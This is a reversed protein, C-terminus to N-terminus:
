GEMLIYKGSRDFGQCIFPFKINCQVNDWKGLNHGTAHMMVCTFQQSEWPEWPLWNQYVIPTQENSLFFLSNYMYFTNSSVNRDINRSEVIRFTKEKKYFLKAFRQKMLGTGNTQAMIITYDLGYWKRVSFIIQFLSFLQKLIVDPQTNKEIQLKCGALLDPHLNTFLKPNGGPM